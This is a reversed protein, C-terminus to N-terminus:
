DLVSEPRGFLYGQGAHVDLKRLRDLEEETEIGEALSMAGSRDALSKLATAMAEKLPDSTIGRIVDIDIKIIDAHVDLLNSFSVEGSGTDDLAIRVGSTRLMDVAETIEGYGEAAANETIELVVRSGDVGGLAERLEPSGATLTSVNLAIFADPPLSSLQALASRIAALELELQLGVEAAEDFWARPSTGSGAPFRALAELGIVRKSALDVIPQFAVRLSDDALLKEIRERAEVLRPDEPLEPAPEDVPEEVSDESADDVRAHAEIEALVEAPLGFDGHSEEVLVGKRELARGGEPRQSDKDDM